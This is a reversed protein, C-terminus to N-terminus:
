KYDKMQRNFEQFVPDNKIAKLGDRYGINYTENLDKPDVFIPIANGPLSETPSIIYRYNVDPNQEVIPFVDNMVDYYSSFDKQRQYIHYSNFFRHKKYEKMEVPNDQDLIVDVTIDKDNTAVERCRHIAAQLNMYSYTGGDVLHMNGISTTPQFVIPISSSAAVAEGWLSPDLKEDFTLISGDDINVSQFAVRKKLPHDKLKSDLRTHSPTNDFFSPKWFAALPGWTPWERFINSTNTNEWEEKLMKYAAIEDGKEFMGLVAANVAGISAGSSVDYSIEEIDLHDYLSQLVGCQYM